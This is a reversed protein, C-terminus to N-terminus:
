VRFKKGSQLAEYRCKEVAKAEMDVLVAKAELIDSTKKPTFFKEIVEEKYEVNDTTNISTYRPVINSDRMLLGFLSTGIQNGCQGVQVTVVSM